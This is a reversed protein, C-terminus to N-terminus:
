GNGKDRRIIYCNGRVNSGEVTVHDGEHFTKGKVDGRVGVDLLVGNALKVRYKNTDLHHRIVAEWRWLEPVKKEQRFAM